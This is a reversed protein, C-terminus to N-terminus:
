ERTSRCLAHGSVNYRALSPLNRRPIEWPLKWSDFLLEKGLVCELASKLRQLSPYIRPGQAISVRAAHVPFTLSSHAGEMQWVIDENQRRERTSQGDTGYPGNLADIRQNVKRTREEEGRRKCFRKGKPRIGMKVGDRWRLFFPEVGFCCLM